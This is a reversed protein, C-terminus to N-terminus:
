EINEFLENVTCKLKHSIDLAKGLSPQIRQNEWRNYLKNDVELYAAFELQNMEMKHRWSKLKNKLM